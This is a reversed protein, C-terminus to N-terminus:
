VAGVCSRSSCVLKFTQFSEVLDDGVGFHVLRYHPCPLQVLALLPLAPCALHLLSVVAHDICQILQLLSTRVQELFRRLLVLEIGDFARM